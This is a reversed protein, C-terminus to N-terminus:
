LPIFHAFTECIYHTNTNKQQDELRPDVDRLEQRCLFLQLGLPLPVLLLHGLSPLLHPRASVSGSFNLTVRNSRNKRQVSGCEEKQFSFLASM